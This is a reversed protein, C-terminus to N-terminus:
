GMRSKRGKSEKTPVPTKLLGELAEDLKLPHLSVPKEASKPKVSETIRRAPPPKRKM